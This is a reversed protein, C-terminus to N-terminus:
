VERTVVGQSNVLMIDGAWNLRRRFLAHVCFAFCIFEYPIMLVSWKWQWRPIELLSHYRYVVLVKLILYAALLNLFATQGTLVWLLPLWMVSYAFGLWFVTKHHFRGIMAWRLKREYFGAMSQRDQGVWVLSPVVDGVGGVRSFSDTMPVEETLYNLIPGFGGSKKLLDIHFLISGGYVFPRKIKQNLLGFMPVEWVLPVTEFLAGLTSGGVQVPLASCYRNPDAKTKHMMKRIHSSDSYTDPALWYIWDYKAYRSAYALKATRPNGGEAKFDLVWKVEIKQQAADLIKKAAAYGPDESDEVAIVLEMPGPYNQHMLCTLGNELPMSTGRVATLITIGPYDPLPTEVEKDFEKFTKKFKSLMSVSYILYGAGQVFVIIGWIWALLIM